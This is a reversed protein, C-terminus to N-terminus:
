KYTAHVNEMQSHLTNLLNDYTNRLEIYNGKFLHFNMPTKLCILLAMLPTSKFLHNTFMVFFAVVYFLSLYEGIHIYIHYM